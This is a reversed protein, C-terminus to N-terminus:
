FRFSLFIRTARTCYMCDVMTATTRIVDWLVRYDSGWGNSFLRLAPFACCEDRTECLSSSYFSYFCSISSPFFHVYFWEEPIGARKVRLNTRLSVVTGWRTGWGVRTVLARIGPLELRQFTVRKGNRKSVSKWISKVCPDIATSNFILRM